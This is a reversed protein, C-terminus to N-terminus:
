TGVRPNPAKAEDGALDSRPVIKPDTEVVKKKKEVLSWMKNNRQLDLFNQDYVIHPIHRITSVRSDTKKKQLPNCKTKAPLVIVPQDRQFGM